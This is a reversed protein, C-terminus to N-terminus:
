YGELANHVSTYPTTLMMWKWKNVHWTSKNDFAKTTTLYQSTPRQKVEISLHNAEKNKGGGLQKLQLTITPKQRTLPCFYIVFGSHILSYYSYIQIHQM